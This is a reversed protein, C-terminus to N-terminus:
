IDGGGAVAISLHEAPLYMYCERWAATLVGSYNHLQCIAHVIGGYTLYIKKGTYYRAM